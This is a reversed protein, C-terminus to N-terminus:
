GVVKGFAHAFGDPRTGRLLGAIDYDGTVPFRHMVHLAGPLSLGTQDYDTKVDRREDFDVFWPEHRVMTPKLAPSGYLATRAVKEAASLYKDMLSPSMSLADGINDFGYGSDDPPFDAAPEFDVGLLDHVTHNYETRNLRRATVHGPDPRSSRDIRDFEDAVWDTVARSAAADPRPMGAPPMQGSQLKEALLEWHARHNDVAKATTYTQLNLGGSQLKANHCGYCNAALFPLVRTRFAEEPQPKNQGCLAPMVLVCVFKWSGLM